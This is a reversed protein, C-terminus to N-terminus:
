NDTGVSAPLKVAACSTGGLALFLAVLALHHRSFYTLLKKM